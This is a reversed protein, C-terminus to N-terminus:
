GKNQKKTAKGHSVRRGKPKAKGKGARARRPNKRYLKYNLKGIKDDLRALEDKDRQADEIAYKLGEAGDYGLNEGMEDLVYEWRLSKRGFRDVVVATRFSEPSKGLYKRFLPRAQEFPITDVAGARQGRKHILETLRAAPDHQIQEKLVEREAMLDALEHEDRRVDGLEPWRRELQQTYTDLEYIRREDRKAKEVSKSYDSSGRIPRVVGNADTYAALNRRVGRRATCTRANHGPNRCVSCRRLPKRKM